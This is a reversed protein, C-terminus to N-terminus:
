GVGGGSKVVTKQTDFVGSFLLTQLQLKSIEFFSNLHKLTAGGELEGENVKKQWGSRDTAGGDVQGM